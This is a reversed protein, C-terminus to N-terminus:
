EIYFSVPSSSLHISHRALFNGLFFIRGGKRTRALKHQPWFFVTTYNGDSFLLKPWSVQAVEVL